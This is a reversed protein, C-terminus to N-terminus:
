EETLGRPRSQRGECICRDRTARSVHSLDESASVETNVAIKINSLPDSPDSGNPRLLSIDKWITSIRRGAQGSSSGM